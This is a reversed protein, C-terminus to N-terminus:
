KENNRRPPPRQPLPPPNDLLPPGNVRQPVTSQKLGTQNTPQQSEPRNRPSLELSKDVPHRCDDYLQDDSSSADDCLQYDSSSADDSLQYDSSPADLTHRSLHKPKPRIWPKENRKTKEVINVSENFMDYQADLRGTSNLDKPVCHMHAPKNQSSFTSSGSSQFSIGFSQKSSAVEVSEALFKQLQMGKGENKTKPLPKAKLNPKNPSPSVKFTRQGKLQAQSLGIENDVLSSLTFSSRPGDCQLSSEACSDYDGSDISVTPGAPDAICDDEVTEYEDPNRCPHVEDRTHELLKQQVVTMRPREHREPSWCLLMLSYITDPCKEPKPLIQHGSTTTLYEYLQDKPITEMKNQNRYTSLNSFANWLVLGFSFVDSAWSYTGDRIVEPPSRRYVHEDRPVVFSDDAIMGDETDCSKRIYGLDSFYVTCNGNDETDAIWINDACLCGHVWNQQHLLSLTNAVASLCCIHDLSWLDCRRADPANRLSFCNGTPFKYVLYETENRKEVAVHGHIGPISETNLQSEETQTLRRCLIDMKIDSSLPFYVGKYVGFEEYLPEDNTSITEREYLNQYEFYDRQGYETESGEKPLSQYSTRDLGPFLIDPTISSKRQPLENCSIYRDFTEELRSKAECVSLRHTDDYRTCCQIADFVSTPICREQCLKKRDEKILNVIASENQGKLDSYPLCGHTIVEYILHGVMWYDSRMSFHHKKLSEPSSWRTPITSCERDVLTEGRGCKRALMFRCLKVSKSQKNYAFSAATFDRHITGHEHLAIVAELAQILFQMLQLPKFWDKNKASYYLVKQFNQQSYDETIYFVPFQDIRYAWMSLIGKHTSLARLIEVTTLHGCDSSKSPCRSHEVLVHETPLNVHIMIKESGIQTSAVKWSTSSTSHNTPQKHLRNISIPHLHTLVETLSHTSEANADKWLSVAGQRIVPSQSFLLCRTMVYISRDLDKLSLGLATFAAKARDEIDEGVADGLANLYAVMGTTVLQVVRKQPKPKKLVNRVRTPNEQKLLAPLTDLAVLATQPDGHFVEILTGLVMSFHVPWSKKKVSWLQKWNTGCATVAKTVDDIRKQIGDVFVSIDSLPVENGSRPQSIYQKVRKITSDLSSHRSEQSVALYTLTLLYTCILNHLFVPDIVDTETLCREFLAKEASKLDDRDITDHKTSLLIDGLKTLVKNQIVPVPVALLQVVASIDKKAFIEPLVKTLLCRVTNSRNSSDYLRTKRCMERLEGKSSWKLLHHPKYQIKSSLFYVGTDRCQQNEVHSVFVDPEGIPPNSYTGSDSDFGDAKRTASSLDSASTHALETASSVSGPPQQAIEMVKDIVKNYYSDNVLLMKTVEKYVEPVEKPTCKVHIFLYKQTQHNRLVDTLSSLRSIMDPCLHIITVRTSDVMEKFREVFTSGIGYDGRGEMVCVVGRTELDECMRAYQIECDVNLCTVIHVRADSM